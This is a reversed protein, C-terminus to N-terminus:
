KASLLVKGTVIMPQHEYVGEFLQLNLTSITMHVSLFCAEKYLSIWVKAARSSHSTCSLAFVLLLLVCFLAFLHLITSRSICTILGTDLDLGGEASFTVPWLESAEHGHWGTQCTVTVDIGCVPCVTRQFRRLLEKYEAAPPRPSNFGCCVCTCQTWCSSWEFSNLDDSAM